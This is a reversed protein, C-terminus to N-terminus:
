ASLLPSLEEWLESGEYVSWVLRSDASYLFAGETGAVLYHGDGPGTEGGEASWLAIEVPYRTLEYTHPRFGLHCSYGDLVALLAGSDVRDTRDQRSGGDWVEVRGVSKSPGVELLSRPFLWFILVAAILCLILFLPRLQKWRPMTM